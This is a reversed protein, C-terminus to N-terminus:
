ELLIYFTTDVAGGTSTYKLVLEDDPDLAQSLGTNEVAYNGSAALTLTNAFGLADSQADVFPDLGIATEGASADRIRLQAVLDSGSPRTGTILGFTKITRQPYGSSDPVKWLIRKLYGVVPAADYVTLLLFAAFSVGRFKILTTPSLPAIDGIFETLDPKSAHSGGYHRIRATTGAYNWCLTFIGTNDLTGDELGVIHKGDEAEGAPAGSGQSTSAAFKHGGRVLRERVDKRAAQIETDITNASVTGVPRGDDWGNTPM